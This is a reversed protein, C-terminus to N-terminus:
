QETQQPEGPFLTGRLLGTVNPIAAATLNSAVLEILANKPCFIDLTQPYLFSSIPGRISDYGLVASGNILIAFVISDLTLGSEAGTAFNRLIGIMGHPIRVSVVVQRVASALLTVPAAENFWKDGVLVTEHLKATELDTLPARGLMALVAQLDALTM